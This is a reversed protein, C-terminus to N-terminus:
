PVHVFVQSHDGVYVCVVVVVVVVVVLVLLLLVVVLLLVESAFTCLTRSLPVFM